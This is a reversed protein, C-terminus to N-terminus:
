EPQYFARSLRVLNMAREMLERDGTYSLIQMAEEYSVFVPEFDLDAGRREKQGKSEDVKTVYWWILKRGGGPAGRITLAFPEGETERMEAIDPTYGQEKSPPMRTYMIVPLPLCNWGSEELVERVAAQIRSEGCNRRGKPLLYENKNRHHILLIRQNQANFVIAGASEVFEDSYMQVSINNSDMIIQPSAHFKSSKRSDSESLRSLIRSVGYDSEVTNM